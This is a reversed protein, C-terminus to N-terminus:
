KRSAWRDFDGLGLVVVIHCLIFAICAFLFMWSRQASMNPAAQRRHSHPVTTTTHLSEAVVTLVSPPLFPLASDSLVPSLLSPAEGFGPVQPVIHCTRHHATYPRWCKLCINDAVWKVLFIGFRPQPVDPKAIGTTSVQVRDVQSSRRRPRELTPIGNDETSTERGAQDPNWPVQRSARHFGEIVSGSQARVHQVGSRRVIDPVQIEHNPQLM